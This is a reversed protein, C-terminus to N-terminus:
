TGKNIDRDRVTESEGGRKELEKEGDERTRLAEANGVTTTYTMSTTRLTLGTVNM